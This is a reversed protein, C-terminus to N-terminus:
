NPRSCHESILSSLLVPSFGRCDPLLPNLLVQDIINLLDRGSSSPEENEDSVRDYCSKPSMNFQEIFTMNDIFAKAFVTVADRILAAETQFVNENQFGTKVFQLKSYSVTMLNANYNQKYYRNGKFYPRM